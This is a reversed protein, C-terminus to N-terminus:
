TYAIICINTSQSPNAVFILASNYCGVHDVVGNPSTLHGGDTLLIIMAPDCRNPYRGNGYSDTNLELRYMNLLDFSKKLAVGIETLDNAELNKVVNLFNNVNSCEKWSVTEDGCTMLMWRDAHRTSRNKVFHEVASKAVDLLTMGSTTKQNMSTSTDILFLIIMKTQVCNLV